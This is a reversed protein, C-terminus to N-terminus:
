FGGLLAPGAEMRGGRSCRNRPHLSGRVATDWAGAWSQVPGAGLLSRSLPGLVASAAGGPALSAPRRTPLCPCVGPAPATTFCTPEACCIHSSNINEEKFLWPFCGWVLVVHGVTNKISSADSKAFHAVQDSSSFKEHLNCTHPRLLYKMEWRPM